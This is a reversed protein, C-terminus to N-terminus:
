RRERPPRLRRLRLRRAGSADDDLQVILGLLLGILAAVLTVGHLLAHVLGDIVGGLHAVDVHGRASLGLSVAAALAGAGAAAVVDRWTM